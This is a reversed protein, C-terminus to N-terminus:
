HLSTSTHGSGYEIILDLEAMVHQGVPENGHRARWAAEYARALVHAALTELPEDGSLSCITYHM